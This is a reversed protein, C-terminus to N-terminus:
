RGFIGRLLGGADIGIGEEKPKAAAPKEQSQLARAGEPLPQGAQAPKTPAAVIRTLPPEVGAPLAAVRPELAKGLETLREAPPPHTKFLLALSGDEAGRAGLKHLVEVLGYPSYGARAALVVGIADAEFEASKDLGRAFVEAGSGILNNVFASRDDRQAIRAGASLAASKQMVTVHHRRLIHGMEHAIVGALQAETDFIEYLGRTVLVTGGPAAFANIAAAEIVGFRWPLDPRESQAALWGGVRNVYAQLAPDDVLPAAGLLRGAVERGVDREEEESMGAAAVLDKGIGFLRNLDITQANAALASGALVLVVLQIRPTNM